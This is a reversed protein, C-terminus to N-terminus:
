TSSAPPETSGIAVGQLGGMGMKKIQKEDFVKISIGNKAIRKAADALYRPTCVSPPDNVLDRTLCTARAYIEGRRVADADGDVRM